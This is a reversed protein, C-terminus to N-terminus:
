RDFHVKSPLEMITILFPSKLTSLGCKSPITLSLVVKYYFPVKYIDGASPSRPQSCRHQTASLIFTLLPDSWYVELLVAQDLQSVLLSIREILCCAAWYHKFSLLQLFFFCLLSSFQWLGSYVPIHPLYSHGPKSELASISCQHVFQHHRFHM